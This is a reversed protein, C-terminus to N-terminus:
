VMMQTLYLMHLLYSTKSLARQLNASLISVYSCDFLLGSLDVCYLHCCASCNIFDFLHNNDSNSLRNGNLALFM